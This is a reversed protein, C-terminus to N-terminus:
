RQEGDVNRSKEVDGVKRISAAHVRRSVRQMSRSERLWLDVLRKDFLLVRGRYLRPFAQGRPSEIFKYFARISPFRLYSSCEDSTLYPTDLTGTIEQVASAGPQFRSKM